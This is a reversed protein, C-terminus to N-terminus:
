IDVPFAVADDARIKETPTFREAPPPPTHRPTEEAEEPAANREPRKTTNESENPRPEPLDQGFAALTFLGLIMMTLTRIATNELRTPM